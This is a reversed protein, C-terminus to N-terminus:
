GSKSSRGQFLIEVHKSKLAKFSKELFFAVLTFQQHKLTQAGIVHFFHFNKLKKVDNPGKSLRLIKELIHKLGHVLTLFLKESWENM